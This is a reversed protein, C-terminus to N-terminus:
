STSPTPILKFKWQTPVLYVPKHGEFACPTDWIDANEDRTDSNVRALFENFNVRLDFQPSGRVYYPKDHDKPISPSAKRGSLKRKEFFIQNKSPHLSYYCGLRICLYLSTYYTGYKKDLKDLEGTLRILEHATKSIKEDSWIARRKTTSNDLEGLERLQSIFMCFVANVRAIQDVKSIPKSPKSSIPRSPKSNITSCIRYIIAGLIVILPIAVLATRSWPSLPSLSSPVKSAFFSFLRPSFQSASSVSFTM